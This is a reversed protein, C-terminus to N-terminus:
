LWIDAGEVTYSDVGTLQVCFKWGGYDTDVKLLLLNYGKKLHAKVKNQGAKALRHQHVNAIEEHNLWMKFGDDSGVHIKIDQEKDSKIYCCAYGLVFKRDGETGKYFDLLDVMYQRPTGKYEKWKVRKNDVNIVMGDRPLIGKEGGKSKLYDLDWGKCNPRGGPNPFPGCILWNIIAGRRALEYPGHSPKFNNIKTVGRSTIPKKGISVDTIAVGVEPVKRFQFVIKKLGVKEYGHQVLKKLPIEVLQWTDPNEDIFGGEIVPGGIAVSRGPTNRKKELLIIKTALQQKGFHKGSSDQIGNVYFMLSNDNIEEKALEIKPLEIRWGGWAEDSNYDV